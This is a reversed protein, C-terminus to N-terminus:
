ILQTCSVRGTDQFYGGVAQEHERINRRTNNRLQRKVDRWLNEISNLALSQPLWKKRYVNNRRNRLSKAVHCSASDDQLAIDKHVLPNLV